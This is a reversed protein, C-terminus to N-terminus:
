SKRRIKDLGQLINLVQAGVDIFVDKGTDEGLRRSAILISYNARTEPNDVDLDFYHQHENEIVIQVKNGKNIHEAFTNIIEYRGDAEMGKDEFDVFRKTGTEDAIIEIQTLVTYPFEKATEILTLRLFIYAEIRGWDISWDVHFEPREVIRGLSESTVKAVAELITRFGKDYSSRFDAYLKDRLFLPIACEEILVPLVVVRKEELERVLGSSLERKCWESEVSAKSLIFVFADSTQIASQIRQIISDGVSLEWTDIWVRVGHRVLQTGLKDVFDQNEHSYSLFIPM